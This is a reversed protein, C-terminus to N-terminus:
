EKLLLERELDQIRQGIEGLNVQINISTADQGYIRRLVRELKWQASKVQERARALELGDPATRLGTEALEYEHLAFAAQASKWQPEAHETLIQYLRPRSVAYELAIEALETGDLYREICERALSPKDIKALATNANM